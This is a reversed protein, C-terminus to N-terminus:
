CSRLTTLRHGRLSSRSAPTTDGGSAFFPHDLQDESVPDSDFNETIIRRLLKQLADRDTFWCLGLVRLLQGRGHHDVQPKGRPCALITCLHSTSGVLWQPGEM